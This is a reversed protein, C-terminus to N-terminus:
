KLRPFRQGPQLPFGPERLAEPVTCVDHAKKQNKSGIQGMGQHYKGYEGDKSYVHGCMACRQKRKKKKVPPSPNNVSPIEYQHDIANMAEMTKTAQASNDTNAEALGQMSDASFHDDDDDEPLALAADHDDEVDSQLLKRQSVPQPPEMTVSASRSAGRFKKRLQTNEQHIPLM